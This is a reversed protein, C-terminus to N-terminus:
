RRWWPPSPSPPQPPPPGQMRQKLVSYGGRKIREHRERKRFEQTPDAGVRQRLRWHKDWNPCLALEGTGRCNPCIRHFILWSRTEGTGRCLACEELRLSTGCVRCTGLHAM